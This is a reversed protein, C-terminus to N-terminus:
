AFVVRSAYKATDAEVSVCKKVLFTGLRKGKMSEFAKLETTYFGKIEKGEIVVFENLHEGVFKSRNENFIAYEEELMKDSGKGLM